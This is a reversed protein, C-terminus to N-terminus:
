PNMAPIIGLAQLLGLNDFNLWAEAAKGNEFRFVIIGTVDAQRGTPPLGMFAGQHTARATFRWVVRDGEGFLDGITFHLDPFAGLFGAVYQKLAEVGTVPIPAFPEHQTFNPAYIEDAIAPNHANWGQEIWKRILAKNQEVTM